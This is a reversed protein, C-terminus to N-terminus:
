FLRFFVISIFLVLSSAMISSASAIVPATQLAHTKYSVDESYEGFGAVNRGAARLIYVSNYSVNKLLYAEGIEFDQTNAVDWSESALAYQVRFGTTKLEEEIEDEVMPEIKLKMIGQDDGLVHLTPPQPTGGEKLVVIVEEEGRPNNARCIYDGLQEKSEFNFQLISSNSTDFMHYGQTGNYLMMPDRLWQFMPNPDAVITCPLRVETGLRGFHNIRPEGVIEPSYQVHLKIDIDRMQTALTTIILGRCKYEGADNRSLNHIKLSHNDLIEYKHSNRIQNRKYYWTVVPNVGARINCLVTGTEGEPAHQVRPTDGFSISRYVILEFSTSDQVDSCTYTGADEKHVSTFVIRLGQQAGDAPQVHIRGDVSDIPNSEFDSWRLQDINEDTTFCTIFFSDNTFYGVQTQQPQLYLQSSHSGSCVFVVILVPVYIGKLLDM